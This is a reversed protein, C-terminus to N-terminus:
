CRSGVRVMPIYAFGQQSLFAPPLYPHPLAYGMPFEPVFPPAMESGEQLSSQPPASPGSNVPEQPPPVTQIEQPPAPARAPAPKESRPKTPKPRSRNFSHPSELTTKATPMILKPLPEKNAREFQISVNHVVRSGRQTRQGRNAERARRDNQSAAMPQQSVHSDAGKPEKSDKNDKIQKNDKANKVDKVDRQVRRDRPGRASRREFTITEQAGATVRQHLVFQHSSEEKAEMAQAPM